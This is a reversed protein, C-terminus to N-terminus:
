WPQSYSPESAFREMGLDLRIGAGPALGVTLRRDNVEVTRNEIQGQVVERFQAEHAQGAAAEEASLLRRQQWSASTFRHEGFVGAQVMTERPETASLNVLQVVVRDEELVEVLAAVDRPLGPRRRHCDFYRLRAVQLGGNYLYLPGGMTLQLLGEVTVPNRVQLYWDGYTAPDQRDDRMFALRQHVQALNHRLIDLPFGPYDGQLWSFWAAEHGAGHKSGHSRIRLWDESELNRQQVLRDADAASMTMQWIHTMPAPHMPGYGDWGKDHYHHPAYMTLGRREGKEMLLDIQSRPFDMYGSDRCLLSANEAAATVSDAMLHWGHPWTWGYYGGWWKGDIYEGIEGSLGVNDPIIGGNERAREMWSETYEVVWDRYKAEGGFLFANAVLTTAGLNTAVDGRGMREVLTRGMLEEMGPKQLDEVSHIGPLDHFPLPWPKWQDYRYVTYHKEFNRFAPGMSGNHACKILKKEPDYNLAEPDENLYFGAYRRAREANRENGPDALCLNYFFAYGEGMHMWDYGQEFEKVVMPHGHGTGYRSFQRTIGEWALHSYELLHDGGGMLYFLPWNHFSEYADDLGDIGIFDDRTPWMVSGDGRVYREMVPAVSDDMLDILNRELLAWEPPEVFPINAEIRTM